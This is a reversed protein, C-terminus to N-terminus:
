KKASFHVGAVDGSVSGHVSNFASQAGKQMDNWLNLQQLATHYSIGDLPNVFDLNVLVAEPAKEATMEHLKAKSDQALEKVNEKLGSWTWQNQLASPYTIGDMPNFFDLNNLASISFTMGDVKGSFSGHLEPHDGKKAGPKVSGSMTLGGLTESFSGSLDDLINLNQLATHYTHGDLPNVFDLNQYMFGVPAVPAVPAPPAVPMVQLYRHTNGM